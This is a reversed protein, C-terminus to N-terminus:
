DRRVPRVTDSSESYVTAASSFSNETPASGHKAPAPIMPLSELTVPPRPSSVPWLTKRSCLLQVEPPDTPFPRWDPCQEAITDRLIRFAVATGESYIIQVFQEVAFDLPAYALAIRFTPPLFPHVEWERDMDVLAGEVTNDREMM